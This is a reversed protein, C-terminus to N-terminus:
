ERRAFLSPTVASRTACSTTFDNRVPSVSCATSRPTDIVTSEPSHTAIMPGLSGGVTLQM